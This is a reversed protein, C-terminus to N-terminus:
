HDKWLFGDNGTLEALEKNSQAYLEELLQKTTPLMPHKNKRGRASRLVNERGITIKLTDIKLIDTMQEKTVDSYVTM